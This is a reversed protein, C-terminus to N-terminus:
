ARDLPFKHKKAKLNFIFLCWSYSIITFNTVNQQRRVLSDTELFPFEPPCKGKLSLSVRLNFGVNQPLFTFRKKNKNKVKRWDIATGLCLFLYCCCKHEAEEKVPFATGCKESQFWSRLKPSAWEQWRIIFSFKKFVFHYQYIVFFFVNRCQLFHVIQTNKIGHIHNSYLQLKTGYKFIGSSKYKFYLYYHFYFCCFQTLSNDAWSNFSCVIETSVDFWFLLPTDDTSMNIKDKDTNTQKYYKNLNYPAKGRGWTMEVQTIGYNCCM